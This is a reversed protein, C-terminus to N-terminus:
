CLTELILQATCILIQVVLRRVRTKLPCDAYDGSYVGLPDLNEFPEHNPIASVYICVEKGSALVTKLEHPGIRGSDSTAYLGQSCNAAATASVTLYSNGYIGAMAISERAWDNRDDQIICLSDIWLYRINLFRTLDIVDQFTQPLLQWPINQKHDEINAKTTRIPQYDGWCHSLCLYPEEEGSSVFLRQYFGVTTNGVDIVRTPLRRRRLAQQCERHLNTCEDLWTPLNNTTYQQIPEHWHPANSM